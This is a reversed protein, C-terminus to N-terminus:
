KIHSFQDLLENYQTSLRTFKEQNRNSLAQDIEHMLRKQHYQFVSSDVILQAMKEEKTMDLNQINSVFQEPQFAFHKNM